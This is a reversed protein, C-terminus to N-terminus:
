CRWSSRWSSPSSTARKGDMRIEPGAGTVASPDPLALCSFSPGASSGPRPLRAAERIMFQGIDQRSDNVEIKEIGAVDVTFTSLGNKFELCTGPSGGFVGPDGAGYTKLKITLIDIDGWIDITDFTGEEGDVPGLHHVGAPSALPTSASSTTAATASPWTLASAWLARHRRQGDTVAFDLRRCRTSAKGSVPLTM